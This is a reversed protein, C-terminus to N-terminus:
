GGFMIYRCAFAATVLFISKVFDFVYCISQFPITGFNAMAGIAFNM